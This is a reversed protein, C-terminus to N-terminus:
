LICIQAGELTTANALLAHSCTFYFSDHLAIQCRHSKFGRGRPSSGLDLAKSWEALTDHICLSFLVIRRLMIASQATQLICVSNNLKM